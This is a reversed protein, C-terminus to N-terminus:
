IHINLVFTVANIQLLCITIRIEQYVLYILVHENYLYSFDLSVRFFDIDFFYTYIIEFQFSSLQRAKSHFQIIANLAKMLYIQGEVCPSENCIETRASFNNLQSDIDDTFASLFECFGFYLIVFCVTIEMTCTCASGQELM